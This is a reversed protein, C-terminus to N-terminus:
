NASSVVRPLQEPLRGVIISGVILFAGLPYGLQASIGWLHVVLSRFSNGHANFWDALPVDLFSLAAAVALVIVGVILMTRAVDGNSRRMTVDTTM